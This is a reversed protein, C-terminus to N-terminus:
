VKSSFILKSKGLAAIWGLAVWLITVYYIEYFLNGIVICWLASIASIFWLNYPRPIKKLNIKMFNLGLYVYMLLIAFLGLAGRELLITTYTMHGSSIGIVEPFSGLGSGFLLNMLSYNRYTKVALLRVSLHGEFIDSTSVLREFVGSLLSILSFTMDFLFFVIIGVFVACFLKIMNRSAVLSYYKFYYYLFIISSCFLSLVGSRSGTLLTILILAGILILLLKKRLKQIYPILGSLLLAVTAAAISLHPPTSFPLCLRTLM